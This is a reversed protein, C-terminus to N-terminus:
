RETKSKEPVAVAPHGGFGSSVHSGVAPREEIVSERSGGVRFGENYRDARSLRRQCGSVSRSQADRRQRVAIVEHHSRRERSPGTSSTECGLVHRTTDVRVPVQVPTGFFTVLRQVKIEVDVRVFDTEPTM